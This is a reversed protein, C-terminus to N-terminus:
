VDGLTLQREDRGPQYLLVAALLAERAEVLRVACSLQGTQRCLEIKVGCECAMKRLESVVTCANADMANQFYTPLIKSTM